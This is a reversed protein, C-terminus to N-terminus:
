MEDVPDYLEFFINMSWNTLPINTPSVASLLKAGNAAFNSWLQIALERQGQPVSINQGPAQLYDSYLITQNNVATGGTIYPTNKVDILGLMLGGYPSGNTATLGAAVLQGNFNLPDYSYTASSTPDSHFQYTIRCKRYMYNDRNFFSDWNINFKVNALDTNSTQYPALAVSTLYLSYSVSNSM